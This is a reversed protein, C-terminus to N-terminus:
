VLSNAFEVMWKESVHGSFINEIDEMISETDNRIFLKEFTGNGLNKEIVESLNVTVGACYYEKDECIVKLKKAITQMAKDWEDKNDHYFYIEIKYENDHVPLEYIEHHKSLYEYLTM